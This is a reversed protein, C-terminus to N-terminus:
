ETPVTLDYFQEKTIQPLNMIRDYLGLSILYEKLTENEGVEIDFNIAVAYLKYREKFDAFFENEAAIYGSCIEIEPVNSKTNETKYLFAGSLLLQKDLGDLNNANFYLIESTEKVVNNFVKM